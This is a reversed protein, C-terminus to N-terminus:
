FFQASVQNFDVAVPSSYGPPATAGDRLLLCTRIGQSAAATLEEVIDSLFLVEAPQCGIAALIKTYSNSERKMGTTTDFYGDLYRTLDGAESYGFMLKQAEVSGSSYIYIRSGSKKWRRFHEPVEPYVHGTLGGSEFAERWIKGQVWKLTTDKVDRRIFDKLTESFKEPAVDLKALERGIEPNGSNHALYDDLKELALPFM